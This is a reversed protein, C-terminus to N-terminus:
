KEVLHRLFSQVALFAVRRVAPTGIRTEVRQGQSPRRVSPRRRPRRSVSAWCEECMNSPVAAPAAIRAGGLPRTSDLTGLAGRERGREERPARMSSLSLPLLTWV